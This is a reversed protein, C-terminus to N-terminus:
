GVDTSLFGNLGYWQWNIVEQNVDVVMKMVPIM